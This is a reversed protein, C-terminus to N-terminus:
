ALRSSHDVHAPGDSHMGRSSPRTEAGFGWGDALLSGVLIALHMRERVQAASAALEASMGARDALLPPLGVLWPPPSLNLRLPLAACKAIQLALAPTVQAERGGARGTSPDSALDHRHHALPLAPRAEQM